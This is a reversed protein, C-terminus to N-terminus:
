GEPAWRADIAAAKVRAPSATKRGHRRLTTSTVDLQRVARELEGRKVQGMVGGGPWCAVMRDRGAATGAPVARPGSDRQACGPATLARNGAPGRGHLCACFWTLVEAM